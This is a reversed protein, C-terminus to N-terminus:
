KKWWFDFAMGLAVRKLDATHFIIDMNKASEGSLVSSCLCPIRKSSRYTHPNIWTLKRGKLASGNIPRNGPTSVLNFGRASGGHCLFWGVRQSPKSVKRRCPNKQKGDTSM